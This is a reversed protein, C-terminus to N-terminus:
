PVIGGVEDMWKERAEGYIGAAHVIHAFGTDDDNDWQDLHEPTNIEMANWVRPLEVLSYGLKRARYNIFTQGQFALPLLCFDSWAGAHARDCLVVGANFYTAGWRISGLIAQISIIDGARHFCLFDGPKADMAAYLHGAPFEKFPDPAQRSVLCDADIYITRDAAQAAESMLMQGLVGMRQKPTIVSLEAGWRKAADQMRPLSHKEFWPGLNESITVIQKKM